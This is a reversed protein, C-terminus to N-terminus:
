APALRHENHETAAKASARPLHIRFITGGGQAADHSVDGGLRIMLQKVISLGLGTGGRQRADSADVQVFKEFVRDKFENPIGPGYDRVAICVRDDTAEVSVVVKQGRPSFKVANSLLNTVVQMLRNADTHVVADTAGHDLRVVVDFREAFARTAEITEEVLPRIEVQKFNCVMGDGEITEIDLIDNVLRLLRQSNAQAIKLLRTPDALREAGPGTLLGLSGAIATLPTRLEHSVTAVFENKLRETRKAETVDRGIFFHLQEIESWVGSWALTVVRGSKHVYRTEFNRMLQGRRAQRMENRTNELDDPYLFATATRGTMEEPRYGLIATSSPSVEVFRGRRDTVLILDLSTDILRQHREAVRRREQQETGLLRVLQAYLAITDLLLISLVLTAALLGYIRGAYFGLDFRGGNLVTSLGVDFLWACMVVMLWLDLISHPRRIWLAVLAAPSLLWVTTNVFMMAPTYRNDVIIVPLADHGATAVLTLACAAALVLAGGTVVATRSSGRPAATKAEADKLLAYAFVVLPFGGHWFMYLWATSQPGAGLLGTPAFLGPFTLAHPIIMAATFLYGCGLALLSRSRLLNYQALLFIATVLYSIILASEYIPMFAWVQPLPLRAFPILAIFTLLSALVIALALRRERRSALVNSIFTGREGVAGPV